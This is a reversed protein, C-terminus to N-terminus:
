LRLQVSALLGTDAPGDQEGPNINRNPGVALVIPPYLYYM